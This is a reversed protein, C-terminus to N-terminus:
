LTEFPMFCKNSLMLLLSTCPVGSTAIHRKPAVQHVRRHVQVFRLTNTKTATATARTGRCNARTHSRRRAAQSSAGVSSFSIHPRPPPLFLLNVHSGRSVQITEGRQAPAHPPEPSIEQHVSPRLWCGLVSVAAASMQFSTKCNYACKSRRSTMSRKNAWRGPTCRRTSMLGGSDPSLREATQTPATSCSCRPAAM